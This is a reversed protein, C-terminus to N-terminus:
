LEAIRRYANLRSYFVSQWTAISSNGGSGGNSGKTYSYVGQVTESQFVSMNASDLAENKTRWAAIDNCLAEFDRPVSMLWIEGTFEEDRLDKKGDTTNQWVGDNLDSGKIRFYQGEKITFDLPAFTHGSITFTGRKIDSLNIYDKLFYNKLVACIDTLNSM